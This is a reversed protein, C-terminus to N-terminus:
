RSKSRKPEIDLELQEHLMDKVEVSIKSKLEQELLDMKDILIKMYKKELYKQYNNIVTRRYRDLDNLAFMLHGPDTDEEDLVSILFQLYLDLKKKIKKKLLTRILEINIIVMSKVSIGDYNIKNKPKIIYGNLNTTNLKIKKYKISRKRIKYRKNKKM